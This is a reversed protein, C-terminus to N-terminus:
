GEAGAAALPTDSRDIFGLGILRRAFEERSGVRGLSDLLGAAIARRLAANGEGFAELHPYLGWPGGQGLEILTVKFEGDDGTGGGDLFDGIFFEGAEAGPVRESYRQRDCDIFRLSEAGAEARPPGVAENTERAEAILETAIARWDDEAAARLAGEILGPLRGALEETGLRGEVVHAFLLDAVEDALADDALTRGILRRIMPADAREEVASM